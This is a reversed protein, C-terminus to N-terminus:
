ARNQSTIYYRNGFTNKRKKKIYTFIYKCLTYASHYVASGAIGLAVRSLVFLWYYEAFAGVPGFVIYLLSGITISTKRGFRYLLYKVQYYKTRTNVVFCGVQRGCDRVFIRWYIKWFGVIGSSTHSTIRSRM